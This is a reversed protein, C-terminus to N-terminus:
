NNCTRKFPVGVPVHKDNKKSARVVMLHKSGLVFSCGCSRTITIGNPNSHDGGNIAFVTIEKDPAGRYNDIVQFKVKFVGHSNSPDLETVKGFFLYETNEYIWDVKPLGGTSSCSIGLRSFVMLVIFLLIKYMSNECLAWNVRLTRATFIAM